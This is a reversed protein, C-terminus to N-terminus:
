GPDRPRPCEDEPPSIFTHQAALPVVATRTRHRYRYTIEARDYGAGSGESFWECHTLEGVVEFYWGTGGIDALSSSFPRYENRQDPEGDEWGTEPRMRVGTPQFLSHMATPISVDLIEVHADGSHLCLAIAVEAGDRYGVRLERVGAAELREVPVSPDRSVPGACYSGDIQPVDSAWRWGGIGLALGILVLLGTGRRQWVPRRRWRARRTVRVPIGRDDRLRRSYGEPAGLDGVLSAWSEAPPRESLHEATLELISQRDSAPVDRLRQAVAGLYRAEHQGLSPPAEKAM